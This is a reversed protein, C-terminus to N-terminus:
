KYEWKPKKVVITTGDLQEIYKLQIKMRESYPVYWNTTVLERTETTETELPGLSEFDMEMNELKELARLHSENKDHGEAEILIMGNEVEVGLAIWKWSQM